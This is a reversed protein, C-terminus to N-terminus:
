IDFEILKQGLLRGFTLAPTVLMGGCYAGGSTVTTGLLEGAAYLGKINSGDQRIVRLKEDVALGAFGTLLWSQTKVAYFPGETIPLPMHTRGLADEGTGQGINYAEVTKLLGRKSIQAKEALETLTKAKFFNHWGDNFADEVDEETIPGGFGGRVLSPAQKYINSDFVWWCSEEPCQLLANEYADHSPIDEQLFRKGNKDVLIEWPQRDPPFHRAMAVLPAPYEDSALIAGFLPLHHEGNRVYGGVKTGLVIGQGQSYPYSCDSYDPAGELEEFMKPNSAYGGSTLVTNDAFYKVIKGQENKTVAGIISGSSDQMLETVESNVRVSVLGSAIHPKLQDELLNLISMGGETGWAYRASSYPEHTTGTVPHEEKTKFGNDTLWDFTDAANFTALKLLEPNATGNSIKMVDDYHSQASDETIGKSKQLKTGAAAMQGSSLFLTGGIVPAAELIVVKKGREALFIATPLGANGGGVILADYKDTSDGSCNSLTLGSATAGAGSLFQRKSM